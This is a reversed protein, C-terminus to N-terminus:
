YLRFKCVADMWVILYQPELARKTWLDVDALIRDSITSITSESVSIGYVEKVQEVIDSRTMGRSYMGLIADEIKESMSQGKGIVQPEFEGNRDRPIALVMNGLTESKINKSFSGNRSNGTNYGDINHKEYGLHADLEGQLLQEIGQKYLDQFFTHFDEKNKFQKAFDKPLKGDEIM